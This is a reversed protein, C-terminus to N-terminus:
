QGSSFEPPLFDAPLSPYEKNLIDIVAQTLNTVNDSFYLVNSQDLIMDIKKGAQAQTIAKQFLSQFKAIIKQSSEEFKKRSESVSLDHAKGKATFAEAKEKYAKESLTGQLATIKNREEILKKEKREIESRWSAEKKKVATAIQGFLKAGTMVDQSNIVAILLPTGEQKAAESSATTTSSKTANMEKSAQVGEHAFTSFLMGCLLHRYIKKM